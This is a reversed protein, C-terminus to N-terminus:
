PSHRRTRSQRWADVAGDRGCVAPSSERVAPARVRLLPEEDEADHVVHADTHRDPRQPTASSPPLPVERPYSPHGLPRDRRELLTTEIPRWKACKPADDTREVACDLDIQLPPSPQEVPEQVLPVGGEDTGRCRQESAETPLHGDLHRVRAIALAARDVHKGGMRRGRGQEDDLHLRLERRELGSEPLQILLGSEAGHDPAFPEPEDSSSDCSHQDQRLCRRRSTVDGAM